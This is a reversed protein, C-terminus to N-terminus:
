MYLLQVAQLLLMFLSHRLRTEVDSFQVSLAVVSIVTLTVCTKMRVYLLAKSPITGHYFLAVVSSSGEM